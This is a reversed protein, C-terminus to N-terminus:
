QIHIQLWSLIVYQATFAQLLNEVHREADKSAGASLLLECLIREDCTDAELDHLKNLSTILKTKTLDEEKNRYRSQSSILIHILCTSM